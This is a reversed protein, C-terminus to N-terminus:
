NWNARSEKVAYGSLGVLSLNDVGFSGEADISKHSIEALSGLREFNQRKSRKKM